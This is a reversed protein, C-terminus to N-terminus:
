DNPLFVDDSPQQVQLPNDMTTGAEGADVDSEYDNENSMSNQDSM